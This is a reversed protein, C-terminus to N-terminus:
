NEMGERKLDEISSGDYKLFFVPNTEMQTKKHYAELSSQFPYRDQIDKTWGCIRKHIILGYVEGMSNMQKTYVVIGDRLKYIIKGCVECTYIITEAKIIEINSM